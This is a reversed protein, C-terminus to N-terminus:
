ARDREDPHPQETYHRWQGMAEGMTRVQAAFTPCAQCLALHLRLTLRHPWSLARDERALVLAAAERCTIMLKM